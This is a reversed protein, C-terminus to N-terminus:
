PSEFSKLWSDIFATLESRKVCRGAIQSERFENGGDSTVLIADTACVHTSILWDVTARDNAPKKADSWHADTPFWHHLHKACGNANELDLPVIPIELTQLSAAIVSEDFIQRTLSRRLQHMMEFYNVAFVKVSPAKEDVKRLRQIQRCFNNFAKVEDAYRGRIENTDFYLTCGGAKLKAALEPRV